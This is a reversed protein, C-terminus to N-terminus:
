QITVLPLTTSDEDLVVTSGDADGSGAGASVTITASDDDMTITYTANENTTAAAGWGLWLGAGAPTGKSWDGGCGGQSTTANRYAELQAGYNQLDAAVAQVEASRQQTQFMQIGVAVAIGVIIVSLVIMLIQQTGM